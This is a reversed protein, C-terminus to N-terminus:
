AAAITKRAWDTREERIDCVATIECGPIRLLNRVHGGGQLGVGVFGIRITEISPAAFPAAAPQEIASTGADSAGVSLDGNALAGAAIGAGSLKLFNRRDM